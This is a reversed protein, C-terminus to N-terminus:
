QLRIIILLHFLMWKQELNKPERARTISFNIREKEGYERIVAEISDQWEVVELPDLDPPNEVGEATM